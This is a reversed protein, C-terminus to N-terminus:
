RTSVINVQVAMTRWDEKPAARALAEPDTPLSMPRGVVLQVSWSGASLTIFDSWRGKLRISGDESVQVGNTLRQAVVEGSPQRAIIAIAVEGSAPAQPAIVLDLPGDATTTITSPVRDAEARFEKAGAHLQRISYSPLAAVLPAATPTSPGSARWLVVAAAVALVAGVIAIAINPRRRQELSIPAAAPAEDVSPEDELQGFAGELISTRDDDSLPALDELAEAPGDDREHAGLARLLEDGM